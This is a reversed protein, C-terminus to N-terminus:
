RSGPLMRQILGDRDIIQHKLAAAVHLAALAALTFASLAHWPKILEALAKDAPVFDPLPLVGFLVVPFGTGLQLGLGAFARCFVAPVARPAHGHHAAKQWAPM